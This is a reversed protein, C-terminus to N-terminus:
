QDVANAAPQAPATDAKPEEADPKPQEASQKEYDVVLKPLAQKLKEVAENSVNMGQTLTLHKLEPIAGLEALGADTIKTGRLLLWNINKLKALKKLGKDTINTNSLDVINLTMLNTIHDLGDDTIKTHSAQLSQLMPLNSLHAFGADTIPTGNIVLSTLHKLNGFYALQDDTIETNSLNAALLRFLNAVQKVTADDPKPCNIFNVSTIGNQEKVLFVDSKELIAAAEQEAQTNGEGLLWNLFGKNSIQGLTEQGSQTLIAWLVTGIILLLVIWIVISLLGKCRCSKQAETPSSQSTNTSM